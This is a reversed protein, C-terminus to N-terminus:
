VGAAIGVAFIEAVADGFADDVAERGDRLKAYGRATGHEAILRRIHVRLRDPALQIHAHHQGATHDLAALREHGGRFQDVHDLSLLKPALTIVALDGIDERELFLDRAL